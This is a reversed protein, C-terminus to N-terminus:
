SWEEMKARMKDNWGQELIEAHTVSYHDKIEELIELGDRETGVFPLYFECNQDITFILDMKMTLGKQYVKTFQDSFKAILFIVRIM